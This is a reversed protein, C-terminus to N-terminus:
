AGRIWDYNFSVSIRDGRGTHLPVEHRMWSEFLLVDGPAPHFNLFSQRERSAKARVPPRGMFLNFRPDEFKLPSAGVPLQLYVTGSVVSLPHIHMTHVTNPAMINLWIRTMQIERPSVDWALAKVYKRVHADLKKKLAEFNPSLRHLQDWSGYSTYGNPYQERSWRAGEADARQIQRAEKVLDRFLAAKPALLKAQYIQSTFVQHLSM